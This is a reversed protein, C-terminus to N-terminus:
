RSSRTAPPGFDDDLKNGTDRKRLEVLRQFPNTARPDIRDEEDGRFDVPRLTEEISEARLRWARLVRPRGPGSIVAAALDPGGYWLAAQSTVPGITM